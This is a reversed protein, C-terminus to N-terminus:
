KLDFAKILSALMDQAIAFQDPTLRELQETISRIDNAPTREYLLANSSISLAKCVKLLTTLSVGVVGREIASLSKPGIGLIESFQEQTYGAKEREHKINTGIRTDLEQKTEM